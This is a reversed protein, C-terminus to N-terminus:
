ARTKGNRKPNGQTPVRRLKRAPSRRPAKDKRGTNARGNDGLVSNCKGTGSPDNITHQHPNHKVYVNKLHAILKGSSDIFTSLGPQTPPRDDTLKGSVFADVIIGLCALMSSLHPVGTTTDAWEGACFKMRHRELASWYVSLRVGARRWNYKGYKLAGELFGMAAFVVLSDPVLDTSLKTAGIADKPNSHKQDAHM